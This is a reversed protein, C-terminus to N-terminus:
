SPNLCFVTTCLPYYNYVTENRSHLQNLQNKFKVITFSKRLLQIINMFRPISPDADFTYEFVLKKLHRMKDGYKELLDMEMGEIDMKIANVPQKTRTCKMRWLVDLPKVDVSIHKRGNTMMM